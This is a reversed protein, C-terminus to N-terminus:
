NEAIIREVEEVSLGVKDAIEQISLGVEAFAVVKGELQGEARGEARGAARGEALGAALGEQRAKLMGAELEPAMIEALAECMKSEEKWKEIRIKNATTVVQLVAEGYIAREKTELQNISYLLDHYTSKSIDNQLSHLWINDNNDLKKSVIIQMKFPINGSVYYIGPYVLNIVCAQGSLYKMLKFPYRQRVLTITIDEAKYGDEKESSVKYLAAYGLVKYFTDVGMTDDPSKYEVINYQRFLKGIRNKIEVNKDNKIILMDVQLPKKNLPHEEEFELDDRNDKLEMRIAAAFGPHWQNKEM